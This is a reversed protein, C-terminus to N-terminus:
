VSIYDTVIHTNFATVQSPRLSVQFALTLSCGPTKCGLIVVETSYVIWSFLACPVHLWVGSVGGMWSCCQKLCMVTLM